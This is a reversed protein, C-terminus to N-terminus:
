EEYSERIYMFNMVFFLNFVDSQLNDSDFKILKEKKDLYVLLDSTVRFCLRSYQNPARFITIEKM